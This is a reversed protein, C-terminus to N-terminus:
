VHAKYITCTSIEQARPLCTDTWSSELHPNAHQGSKSLCTSARRKISIVPPENLYLVFRITTVGLQWRHGRLSANPRTIYVQAPPLPSLTFGSFDAGLFDLFKKQRKQGTGLSFELSIIESSSRLALPLHIWKANNSRVHKPSICRSISRVQQWRRSVHYIRIPSATKWNAIWISELRTELKQIWGDFRRKM